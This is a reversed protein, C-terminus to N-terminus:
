KKLRNPTSEIFDIDKSELDKHPVKQSFQLVRIYAAIRWMDRYKIQSAYNSMVGFGNKMVEVYHGLAASSITPSHLDPPNWYGRSVIFGNGFGGLDHCPSCYINFRNQGRILDQKTINFPPKTRYKRSEDLPSLSDENKSEQAITGTPLNRASSEHSFHKFEEFPKIKADGYSDWHCNTLFFTFMLMIPLGSTSILIKKIIYKLNVTYKM